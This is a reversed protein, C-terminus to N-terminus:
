SAPLLRSFSFVLVGTLAMCAGVRNSTRKNLHTRLQRPQAPGRTIQFHSTGRVVSRARCGRRALIQAVPFALPIPSHSAIVFKRMAPRWSVRCTPLCFSSVNRHSRLSPSMSCCLGPRIRNQLIALLSAMHVGQLSRRGYSPVSRPNGDRDVTALLPIRPRRTPRVSRPMSSVQANAVTARIASIGGASHCLPNESGGM